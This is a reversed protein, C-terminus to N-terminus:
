IHFRCQFKYIHTWVHAYHTRVCVFMYAHAYVVCMCVCKCLCVHMCACVYVCGCVVHMHLFHSYFFSSHSLLWLDLLPPPTLVLFPLPSNTVNTCSYLPRVYHFIGSLPYAPISLLNPHHNLAFHLSIYTHFYRM